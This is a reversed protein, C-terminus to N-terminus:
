FDVNILVPSLQTYVAVKEGSEVRMAVPPFLSSSSPILIQSTFVPLSTAMRLPCVVLTHQRAQVALPLVSIEPDKSEVILVQSVEVQCCSATKVPWELVTRPM